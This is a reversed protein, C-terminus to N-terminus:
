SKKANKVEKKKRKEGGAGAKGGKVGEERPGVGITLHTSPTRIIGAAGRPKPDLRRRFTPGKDARADTVVWSDKDVAAKANAQASSLVKLALRGGRKGSFKLVTEAEGISKGRILNMLDRMKSPSIKLYRGQAKAITEMKPKESRVKLKSNQM